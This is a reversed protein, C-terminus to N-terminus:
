LVVAVVLLDVTLVVCVARCFCFGVCSCFVLGPQEVLLLGALYTQGAITGGLLHTM